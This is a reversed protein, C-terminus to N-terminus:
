RINYRRDHQHWIQGEAAAGAGVIAACDQARVVQRLAHHGRRREEDGSCNSSNQQSGPVRHVWSWSENVQKTDRADKVDHVSGKGLLGLARQPLRAPM